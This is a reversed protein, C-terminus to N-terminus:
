ILFIGNKSDSLIVLNNTPWGWVNLSMGVSRKIQLLTCLCIIGFEIKNQFQLYGIIINAIYAFLKPDTPYLLLFITRAAGILVLSVVYFWVFQATHDVYVMPLSLSRYQLGEHMELAASLWMGLPASPNSVSSTCKIVTFHQIGLCLETCVLVIWDWSHMPQLVDELTTSCPCFSIIVVGGIYLFYWWFVIKLLFHRANFHRHKPISWLNNVETQKANFSNLLTSQTHPKQYNCHYWMNINNSFM